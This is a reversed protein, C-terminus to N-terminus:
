LMIAVAAQHIETKQDINKHYIIEYKMILAIVVTFTKAINKKKKCLM